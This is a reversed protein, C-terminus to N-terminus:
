PQGRFRDHLMMVLTMSSGDRSMPVYIRYPVETDTGPFRHTRRQDDKAQWGPSEPRAQSKAFERSEAVQVKPSLKIGFPIVGEQAAAFHPLLCALMPLFTRMFVRHYCCWLRLALRAHGGRLSQLSDYPTEAVIKGNSQTAHVSYQM